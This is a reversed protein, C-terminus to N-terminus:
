IMIYLRLTNDNTNVRNLPDKVISKRMYGKAYGRVGENIAETLIGGCIHVNQGIEIFCSGHRYRSMYANEKNQFKLMKLIKNLIDKGLASEENRKMDKISQIIDQNLYYNADICLKEIADTIEEVHIERLYIVELSIKDYPILWHLSSFSGITSYRFM